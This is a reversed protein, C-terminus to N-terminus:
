AIAGLNKLTAIRKDENVAANPDRYLEQFPNPKPFRAAVDRVELEDDNTHENQHCLQRCIEITKQIDIDSEFEKRRELITDENEDYIMIFKMDALIDTDENRFPLHLTVHHTPTPHLNRVICLVCLDSCM